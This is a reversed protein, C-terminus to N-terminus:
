VTWSVSTAVLGCNSGTVPFNAPTEGVLWSVVGSTNINFEGLKQAGESIVPVIINVATNPRFNSAIATVLNIAGTSSSDGATFVGTYSCTVLKGIRRLYLTVSQTGTFSGGSITNAMTSEEYHNLSSSGNALQIGVLDTQLVTNGDYQLAVGASSNVVVQQDVGDISDIYCVGGVTLDHSPINVSGNNFDVTSGENILIRTVLSGGNGIKISLNDESQITLPGSTSGLTGIENCEISGDVTLDSYCQVTKDNNIRMAKQSSISQQVYFDISDNASVGDALLTIPGSSNRINFSTPRYAENTGHSYSSNFRHLQVAQNGSATDEGMSIVSYGLPEENAIELRTAGSQDAHLSLVNGTGPSEVNYSFGEDAFRFRTTDNIKLDMTSDSQVQFNFAALASYQLDLQPSVTNRSVVRGLGGDIWFPYNGDVGLRVDNGLTANISVDTTGQVLGCHLDECHLDALDSFSVPDTKSTLNECLYFDDTGANRILGAWKTGANNYECLLGLDTTDGNNNAGCVVLTDEITLNTSSVNTTDGTVTLDGSITVASTSCDVKLIESGGQDKRVVFADASDSDVLLSGEFRGDSSTVQKNFGFLSM